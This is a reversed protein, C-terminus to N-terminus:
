ADELPEPDIVRRIRVVQHYSITEAVRGDRYLKVIARGGEWIQATARDATLCPEDAVTGDVDVYRVEIHESM